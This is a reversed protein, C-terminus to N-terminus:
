PQIEWVLSFMQADTPPTEIAVHTAHAPVDIELRPRRQGAAEWAVIGLDMAGPAEGLTAPDGLFWRWTPPYTGAATAYAQLRRALNPIPIVSPPAPLEAAPVVITQSLTACNPGLPAEIKDVEFAALADFVLGALEATIEGGIERTGPPGLVEVYVECGYVEISRNTDITFASPGQAGDTSVRLKLTSAQQAPDALIQSSPLPSLAGADFRVVQIARSNVRWLRDCTADVRKGDLRVLDIGQSAAEGDASLVGFWQRGADSTRPQARGYIEHSM